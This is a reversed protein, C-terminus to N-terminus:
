VEEEVDPLLRSSMLIVPMMVVMMMVIMMMMIGGKRKGEFGKWMDKWRTFIRRKPTLEVRKLIMELVALKGYLM